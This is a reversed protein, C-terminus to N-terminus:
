NAKRPNIGLLSYLACSGFLGTLALVTGVLDLGIGLGSHAYPYLGTYFFGSALYLRILRDRTGLNNFM